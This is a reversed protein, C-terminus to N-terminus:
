VKKPQRFYKEPGGKGLRQAIKLPYLVLHLKVKGHWLPPPIKIWKKRKDTVKKNKLLNQVMKETQVLFPRIRTKAVYIRKMPYMCYLISQSSRYINGHLFALASFLIKRVIMM